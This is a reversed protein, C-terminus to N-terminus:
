HKAAGLLWSAGVLLTVVPILLFVAVWILGPLRTLRALADADSDGAQGQRRSHQLELVPRPAALLLFWTVTYAFATQVPASGWWSVVFVLASAVLVSWLGFWNRIQVLMLALLVLALWLMAVAHGDAVIAAAGLGLLGPGVYGAAATVIMGAGDARGQALTLGSTDSHLRIGRLRRGSVIAVIGHSAEHTITVLHRSYRWAVPIAVLALALV